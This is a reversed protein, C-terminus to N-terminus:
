LGCTKEMYIDTNCVVQILQNLDNALLYNGRRFCHTTYNGLSGTQLVGSKTMAQKLIANMNVKDKYSTVANSSTVSPFVFADPGFNQAENGLRNRRAQVFANIWADIKSKAM